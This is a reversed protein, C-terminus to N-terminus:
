CDRPRDVRLHEEVEHRLVLRAGEVQERRASQGLVLTRVEGRDLETFVQAASDGFPTLQADDLVQLCGRERLRRRQTPGSDPAVGAQREDGM